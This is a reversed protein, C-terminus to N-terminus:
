DNEGLEVMPKFLVSFSVNTKRLDSKKAPLSTSTCHAFKM